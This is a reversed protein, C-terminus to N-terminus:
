DAASESARQQKLVVTLWAAFAPLDKVNYQRVQLDKAWVDAPLVPVAMFFKPGTPIGITGVDSWPMFRKNGYRIGERDVVLVPRQTVFQWVLMGFCVLLSTTGLLRLVLEAVDASQMETVSNVQSPSILALFFVFQILVPRRRVPFVVRGTREFEETWVEPSREGM